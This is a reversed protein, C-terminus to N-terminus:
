RHEHAMAIFQERTLGLDDKIIKLLLGQGL